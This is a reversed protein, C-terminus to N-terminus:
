SKKTPDIGIKKLDDNLTERAHKVADGSLDIPKVRTKEGSPVKTFEHENTPSAIKSLFSLLWKIM